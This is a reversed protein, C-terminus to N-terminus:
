MGQQSVGLSSILTAVENDIVGTLADTTKAPACPTCRDEDAFKFKFKFDDKKQRPINGVNDGDNSDGDSDKDGPDCQGETSSYGSEHDYVDDNEQTAM